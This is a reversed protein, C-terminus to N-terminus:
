LDTLGKAAEVLYNWVVAIRPVGRLARHGVLWVPVRPLDEAAAALPGTLPVEVLGRLARYFRPLVAAGLGAEVAALQVELSPTRLVPEVGAAHKALWAAFNNGGYEVQWGIWRLEALDRPAGCAAAVARSALVAAHLTMLKTVVLEGSTPKVLRLALDAERRNLDAIEPNIDVNFRLGPHRAAMEPLLPVVFAEAPGAFSTIRVLGEPTDERTEASRSFRFAAAEMDEASVLLQEAAATPALGERTRDFLSTGVAAEFAALRRSVTSADVGLRSGAGALTRERMAALFLRVDDWRLDTKM